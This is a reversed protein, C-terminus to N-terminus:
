VLLRPLRVHMAVGHNSPSVPGERDCYQDLQTNAHTPPPGKSRLHYPHRVYVKRDGRPNQSSLRFGQSEYWRIVRPDNVPTLHLAPSLAMVAQLLQTGIGSGRATSSVCIYELMTGRVIAAAVLCDSRWIGLSADERRQKWVPHLHKDESQDFAEHFLRKVASFDSQKLPRLM